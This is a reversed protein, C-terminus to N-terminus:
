VECRSAPPALRAKLWHMLKVTRGEARPQPESQPEPKTAPEVIYRNPPVEIGGARAISRMWIDLM